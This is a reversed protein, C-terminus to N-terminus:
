RRGKPFPPFEAGPPLQKVAAKMDVRFPVGPPWGPPVPDIPPTPGGGETGCIETVIVLGSGGVGGFMMQSGTWVQGGCGGAGTNAAGNSGSQNVFPWNVQTTNIANGGFLAGGLGARDATIAGQSNYVSGWPEGCAGPLALDGIGAPAGPGPAGYLGTEVTANGDYAWANGGGKAIVLGGFTTDAAFNGGATGVSVIGGQAVFVDAGQVVLEAPLTKRSYGGSGGGGAACTGSVGNPQCWGGGGGAGLCEVIVYILDDSPEYRGSATFVQVNSWEAGHAKVWARSNWAWGKFVQGLVPSLPWAPGNM